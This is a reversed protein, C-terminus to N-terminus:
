CYYDCYYCGPGHGTGISALLSVALLLPVAIVLVAARERERRSKSHEQHTRHAMQQRRCGCQQEVGPSVTDETHATATIRDASRLSDWVPSMSAAFNALRKRRNLFFLIYGLAESDAVAESRPVAAEEDVQTENNIIIILIMIWHSNPM